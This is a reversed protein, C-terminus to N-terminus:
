PTRRKRFLLRFPWSILRAISKIIAMLFGVDARKSPDYSMFILNM